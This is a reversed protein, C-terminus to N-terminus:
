MVALLPSPPKPTMWGALERNTVATPPVESRRELLARPQVSVAQFPAPEPQAACDGLGLQCCSVPQARLVTASTDAPASGAVRTATNRVKPPWPRAPKPPARAGGGTM